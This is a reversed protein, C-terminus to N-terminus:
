FYVVFLGESNGRMSIPVNIQTGPLHIYFEEKDLLENYIDRISDVDFTYNTYIGIRFDKDLHVYLPTFFINVLVGPILGVFQRSNLNYWFRSSFSTSSLFIKEKLKVDSIDKMYLNSEKELEYSLDNTDIEPQSNILSCSHDGNNLKYYFGLCSESNDCAVSCSSESFSKGDVGSINTLNATIKDKEITGISTYHEPFKQINCRNGYWGEQCYCKNEVWSAHNIENCTNMTLTSGPSHESNEPTFSNKGLAQGYIGRNKSFYINDTNIKTIKPNSFNSFYQKLQTFIIIVFFIILIGIIILIIMSLFHGRIKSSKKKSNMWKEMSFGVPTDEFIEFEKVDKQNRFPYYPIEQSM